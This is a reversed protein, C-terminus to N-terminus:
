HVGRPINHQYRSGAMEYPKSVTETIEDLNNPRRLEHHNKLVQNLLSSIPIKYDPIIKTRGQHSVGLLAYVKDRMDSCRLQETALMSQYISLQTHRERVQGVTSLAFSGRATEFEFGDQVHQHPQCVAIECLLAQFPEWDIFQTGCM